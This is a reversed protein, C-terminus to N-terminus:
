TAFAEVERSSPDCGCWLKDSPARGVSGSAVGLPLVSRASEAIGYSFGWFSDQRMITEAAGCVIIDFSQRGNRLIALLYRGKPSM